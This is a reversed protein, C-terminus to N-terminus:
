RRERRFEVGRRGPDNTKPGRPTSCRNSTVDGWARKRRKTVGAPNSSKVRVQPSGAVDGVIGGGSRGGLSKWSSISESPGV